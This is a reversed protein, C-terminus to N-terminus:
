KLLNEINKTYRSIESDIQNNRFAKYSDNDNKLNNLAAIINKKGYKEKLNNLEKIVNDSDINDWYRSFSSMMDESGTIDNYANNVNDINFDIDDDLMDNVNQYYNKIAQNVDSHNREINKLKGNFKNKYSDIKDNMYKQRGEIDFSKFYDSNKKVRLNDRKKNELFKNFNIDEIENEDLLNEFEGDLISSLDIPTNEINNNPFNSSPVEEIQNKEVQAIQEPKLEEPIKPEEISTQEIAVTNDMKSEDVDPTQMTPEVSNPHSEIGYYGQVLRDIDAQPQMKRLAQLVMKANENGNKAAERIEKFQVNNIFSM